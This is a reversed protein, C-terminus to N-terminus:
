DLKPRPPSEYGLMAVTTPIVEEGSGSIRDEADERIREIEAYCATLAATAEKWGRQDLEMARWVLCRDTRADFTGQAMAGDTRALLGQFTTRSLQRRESLPKQEFDEDTFFVRSCGKYVHETAGRRPVTETIEVCGAKELARFHYSVFSLAQQKSEFGPAYGANIFQVPSMPHENVTELIRVRMPHGLPECATKEPEKTAGKAAGV